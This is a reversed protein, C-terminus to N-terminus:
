SRHYRKVLVWRGFSFLRNKRRQQTISPGAHEFIREFQDLLRKRDFWLTPQNNPLCPQAALKLYEADNRDLEIIREILAEDSGYDAYNLFSAPNFEEQVRPNGWYIPLCRAIMAHVMKETTYGPLAGNEFAINFKYDKLWAIKGAHGGPIPGGINNMFRGGSDVKKYRSLKLFFRPRNGNKRPSHNSVVFSCFKSKSALVQEVENERRLLVEPNPFQHVYYPLRLHRHDELYHSTFAYDCQRFDPFTSEQTYFIKVCNHLRHAQGFESYLLFDPQDSLTIEFRESLLHYFFNDQKPFNRGFDSFDLNIRRKM